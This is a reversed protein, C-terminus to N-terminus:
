EPVGGTPIPNTETVSLLLVTEPAGVVFESAHQSAEDPPVTVAQEAELVVTTPTVYLLETV